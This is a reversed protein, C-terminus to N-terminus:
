SRVAHGTIGNKLAILALLGCKVRSPSLQGGLLGEVDERGMRLVDEVAKGHVHETLMSAAAQSIICGDGTFTVRSVRSRELQAYVTVADGCLPNVEEQVLVANPLEGRNRPHRAHDLLEVRTLVSAPAFGATSAGLNQPPANM